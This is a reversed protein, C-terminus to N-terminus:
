NVFAVKILCDINRMEGTLSKWEKWGGGFYILTEVEWHIYYITSMLLFKSNCIKKGMYDLIQWNASRNPAHM